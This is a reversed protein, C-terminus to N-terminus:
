TSDGEDLWGGHSKAVTEGCRELRGLREGAPTHRHKQINVYAEARRSGAQAGESRGSM